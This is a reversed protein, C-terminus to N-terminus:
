AAPHDAAQLEYRLAAEVASISLEYLVALDAIAEGARFGEALVEAPVGGVAPRGMARRPNLVVVRDDDLRVETITDGSFTARETFSAAPPTLVLQGSRVVVLRLDPDLNTADQVRLVLERGEVDLLARRSVLPYPTGLDDRLREVAPRLRQLAVGSSRFQALLRTELLEGWTVTDDGTSTARVVPQYHVGSRVYGDIWRRATGPRLGVYKDVDSMSYIRRELLRPDTVDLDDWLRM